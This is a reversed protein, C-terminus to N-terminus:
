CILLNATIQVIWAAVWALVLSQVMSFAAWKRGLEKRLTAMTAICPFYLLTFVMFGFATASSLGVSGIGNNFLIAFTSAIAEKAPIGTLLCVSLRWDFGLPAMIPAMWHGITALYSNELDNLDQSPFYELVWIIISACLVVTSIKKLFDSVRFWVRGVVAKATPMRLAPLENVHDDKKSKFWRTNKMLLAFAFSLLIGILYLGSLVLAQHSHFFTSIFLIYVPLRGSCSMFPVMLMTLSREKPDKIDKAAMIAPVNCDFGMLMPIFSRGHLGLKHMVGDMLYAVREMYGSEEMLSLMTFLIIINPLATALSGVGVVVGDALLSQTWGAPLVTYLWDHLATVGSDLWEQIPDGLLFTLRFMLGLVIILIPFGIWRNTLFRDIKDSLNDGYDNPAHHLTEVVAGHVFAEVDHITTPEMEHKQKLLMPLDEKLGVRVGLIQGLLPYDIWHKTHRLERYHTLLIIVDKNEAIHQAILKLGDELHRADVEHIHVGEM